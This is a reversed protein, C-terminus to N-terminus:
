PGDRPIVRNDDMSTGNAAAIVATGAMNNTACTGDLTSRGASAASANMVDAAAAAMPQAVRVGRCEAATVMQSKAPAHTSIPM